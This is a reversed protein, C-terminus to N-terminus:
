SEGRLAKMVMAVARLVPDNKMTEPSLDDQTAPIFDFDVKVNHGQKEDDPKITITVQEVREIM